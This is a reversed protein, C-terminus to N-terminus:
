GTAQIEVLWEAGLFPPRDGFTFLREDGIETVRLSQCAGGLTKDAEVAAKISRPGSGALYADLNVASGIDALAAVLVQVRFVLQDLGRGFAKDFETRGALVQATPPLPNSLPWASVQLDKIAGLNAAIGERIAGVDAM